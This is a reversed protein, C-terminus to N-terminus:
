RRQDMDKPLLSMQNTDRKEGTIDQKEFEYIQFVRVLPWRNHIKSEFANMATRTIIKVTGAKGIIKNNLKVNKTVSIGCM